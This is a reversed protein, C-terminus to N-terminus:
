SPFLGFAQTGRAHVVVFLSREHGNTAKHAIINDSIHAITGHGKAFTLVEWLFKDIM